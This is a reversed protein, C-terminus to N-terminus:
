SSPKKSIIAGVAKSKSQHLQDSFHEKIDELLLDNFLKHDIEGWDRGNTAELDMVQLEIDFQECPVTECNACAKEVLTENYAGTVCEDKVPVLSILQIRRSTVSGITNPQDFQRCLIINGELSVDVEFAGVKTLHPVGDKVRGEVVIEGSESIAITFRSEVNAIQVKIIELPKESSRDLVVREENIRIGKAVMASVLRANLADTARSSTCTMKVLGVGSGDSALQVALTHLKEALIIYPKPNQLYRLSCINYLLTTVAQESFPCNKLKLKRLKPCGKSLEVLGADSEGISLRTRGSSSRLSLAIGYQHSTGTLMARIGNDLPLDMCDKVLDMRLDRLNKLHTGICEMVENSIYPGIKLSVLSNCCNKALLTVDKIDYIDFPYGFHFTEIVMNRLALERLWEGNGRSVVM